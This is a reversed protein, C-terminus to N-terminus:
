RDRPCHGRRVRSQARPPAPVLQGGWARVVTCSGASALHELADRGKHPLAVSRLACLWRAAAAHRALRAAAYRAFMTQIALVDEMTLQLKRTADEGQRHSVSARVANSRLAVCNQLM